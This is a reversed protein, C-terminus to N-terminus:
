INIIIEKKKIRIIGFHSIISKDEIKNTLNILWLLDIHPFKTNINGLRFYTSKMSTPLLRNEYFRIIASELIM